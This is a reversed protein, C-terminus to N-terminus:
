YVGMDVDMRYLYGNNEFYLMKGDSTLIPNTPNISTKTDYYIENKSQDLIDYIYFHYVGDDAKQAFVFNQSDIWSIRNLATKIGLNTIDIGGIDTIYNADDSLFIINGEPTFRAEYVKKNVDLKTMQNNYLNLIQLTSNAVVLLYKGDPSWDLQPNSIPNDKFNYIRKQDTNTKTARVLTTEGGSPSFYYIIEESNPSWVIYKIGDEFPTIEQHLLDYRKFDYLSTKQDQKVIALTRNPSWIVNSVDVFFDPSIKETALIESTINAIEYMTKGGSSLIYMSVKDPSLVAYRATDPLAQEVAPLARLNVTTNQSSGIGLKIDKKYPIYDALEIKIAYNGPKLKTKQASVAEQGSITIKAQAPSAIVTIGTSFYLIGFISGALAIIGIIIYTWVKGSM